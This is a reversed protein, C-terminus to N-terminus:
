TEANMGITLPGASTDITDTSTALARFEPTDPGAVIARREGTFLGRILEADTPDRRQDRAEQMKPATASRLAEVDASLKMRRQTREIDAQTADMAQDTRDVSEREEATLDRGETVALDLIAKQAEWAQASRAVLADLYEKTM